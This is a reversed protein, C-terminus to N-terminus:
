NRGNNFLEEVLEDLLHSISFGCECVTDISGDPYEIINKSTLKKGCKPCKM